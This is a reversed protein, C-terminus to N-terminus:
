SELYKEIADEEDYKELVNEDDHVESAYEDDDAIYNHGEGGKYDNGKAWIDFCALGILYFFFFTIALIMNIIILLIRGDVLYFYICRNVYSYICRNDSIDM